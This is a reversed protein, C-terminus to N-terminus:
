REIEDLMYAAYEAALREDPCVSTGNEYGALAQGVLGRYGEPLEELGWRGGEAKSLILKERKYALVRCLNLVVYVPDSLIDDEAQAIDCRISDFYAEAPVEGFVQGVPAGCLCKGRERVITMHAALDKDTGKMNAVYGDPDTRYWDLHAVSFHLEFPTPYVFPDCVARRVISMEIGKEPAKENLDVVMDMFRRKTEDPVRKEVVVLLDIDSKQENFCGMAASGHLYVGTLNGGLIERCQQAFASTIQELVGM